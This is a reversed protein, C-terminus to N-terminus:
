EALPLEVPQPPETPEAAPPPVDPPDPFGAVAVVGLMVLGITGKILIGWMRGKAAGVGIQSARTADSNGSFELLAAGVGAGLVAGVLPGILPIPVGILGGAIGGVVAGVVGRWGGGARRSGEAGAVFELLEALLGLVVLAILGPVALATGGTAIAYIGAAIVLLWLGPLGLVAIAIGALGVVLLVIYYLLHLWFTPDM